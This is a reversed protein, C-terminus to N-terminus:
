DGSAGLSSRILGAITAPDHEELSARDTLATSTSPPEDPLELVQFRSGDFAILSKEILSNRASLYREVPWRLLDCLTDYHYFSLGRRNGALVLLLYLLLEDARLAAFFGGRLFRNPIFAFGDKGIQRVREAVIPTNRQLNTNSM